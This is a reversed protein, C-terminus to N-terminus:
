ICPIAHTMPDARLARTRAVGDLRRSKAASLVLDPRNRCALELATRGDAVVEVMFQGSLLRQLSARRSDDEEVLLVRAGLTDRDLPLGIERGPGGVQSQDQDMSIQPRADVARGAPENSAPLKQRRGPPRPHWQPSGISVRPLRARSASRDWGP